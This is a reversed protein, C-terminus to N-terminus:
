GARRAPKRVDEGPKLLPGFDVAPLDHEYRVQDLSRHTRVMAQQAEGLASVAAVISKMPPEDAGSPLGLTRRADMVQRMLRVAQVLAAEVSSEAATLERAVALTTRAHDM